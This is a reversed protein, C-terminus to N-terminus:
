IYHVEYDKYFSIAARLGETVTVSKDKKIFIAQANYKELLPKSNEIGLIFCATSLMDSYLGSDCVITVSILDTEVPYGTKADLIHHYLIGDTEFRKEYSGSTSVFGAALAISAFVDSPDTSFPDRIGVVFPEGNPKKSNVGISGGVNVIGSVGAERYFKVAIDCAYGKGLAGLDLSTNNKLSVTKHEGFVINQYGTRNLAERVREAKPVTPHDSDFGWLATLSYLSIDFAGGTDACFAAAKKLMDYIDDDFIATKEKNLLSIQSSEIKHSLINEARLIDSEVSQLLADDAGYVTQSVLSGMAYFRDTKARNQGCGYLPLVLLLLLILIVPKKLNM